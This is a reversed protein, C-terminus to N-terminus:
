SIPNVSHYNVISKQLRPAEAEQPTHLEREACFNDSGHNIM